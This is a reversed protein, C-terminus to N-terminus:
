DLTAVYHYGHQEYASSQVHKWRNHRLLLLAKMQWPMEEPLGTQHGTVTCISQLYSLYRCQCCSITVVKPGSTQTTLPPSLSAKHAPLFTPATLGSRLAPLCAPSLSWPHAHGQCTHSTDLSSPRLEVMPYIADFDLAFLNTTILICLRRQATDSYLHPFMYPDANYRM